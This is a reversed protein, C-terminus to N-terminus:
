KTITFASDEHAQTGDPNVVLLRRAGPNASSINFSCSIRTGAVVTVGSAPIDPGVGTLLVQPTGRFNEGEITVQVNAAAQSASDPTIKTVKPPTKPTSPAPVNAYKNVLYGAHSISLIALLGGTVDPFQFLSSISEAGRIAAGLAIAYTVVAVITFFFNQVKAIDVHPFDKVTEGRFMDSFEPRRKVVESGRHGYTDRIERKTTESVPLDALTDDFTQDYGPQEPLTRQQKNEKILPSAVASTISIGMLAWLVEPLQLDLPAACPEAEKPPPAEAEPAQEAEGEPAPLECVYAKPHLEISDAVRALGITWLASLVVLTWLVIQFRSLSVMRRNDVFIAWFGWKSGVSLSITGMVGFMLILNIIWAWVWFQPKTPVFCAIVVMIIVLVLTIVAYWGQSIRSEENGKPSM